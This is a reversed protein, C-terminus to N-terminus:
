AGRKEREERELEQLYTRLEGAKEDPLDGYSCGFRDRVCGAVHAYPNRGRPHRPDPELVEQLRDGLSRMEQWIEKKLDPSM